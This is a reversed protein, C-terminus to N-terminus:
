HLTKPLLSSCVDSLTSVTSGLEQWASWNYPYLCVSKILASRSDEENKLRGLMIGYLYLLWSDDETWEVESSRKGDLFAELATMIWPIEKNGTVAGDLPGLIMESEEDCRKEGAIYRAYLHLFKAKTSRCNALAESARDYEHVDFYSKALLYVALEAAELAAEPVSATCPHLYARLQADTSPAPDLLAM